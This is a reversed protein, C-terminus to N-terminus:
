AAARRYYKALAELPTLPSTVSVNRLGATFALRVDGVSEAQRLALVLAPIDLGLIRGPSLPAWRLDDLHYVESGYAKHFQSLVAAFIEGPLTTQEGINLWVRQGVRQVLGLAALPSTLEQETLDSGVSRSPMYTRLVCSIERQLSTPTVTLDPSQVVLWTGLQAALERETLGSHEGENFFWYWAGAPGGAASVMMHVAWLSAPDELYPDYELILDALPTPYLPHARGSAKDQIVAALGAAIIWFRMAELMNKGVGLSHHANPRSFALADERIARLGKSLWGDRLHFTQHRGLATPRGAGGLERLEITPLM